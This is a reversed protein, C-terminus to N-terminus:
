IGLTPINKSRDREDEQVKLKYTVPERSKLVTISVAFWFRTDSAGVIGLLATAAKAHCMGKRSM